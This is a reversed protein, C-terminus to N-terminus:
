STADEPTCNEPVSDPVSEAPQYGHQSALTLRTGDSGGIWRGQSYPVRACVCASKLTHCATAAPELRRCTFM